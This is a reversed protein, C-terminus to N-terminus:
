PPGYGVWQAIYWAVFPRGEDDPYPSLFVLDDSFAVIAKALPGEELVGVDEIKGLELVCQPRLLLM